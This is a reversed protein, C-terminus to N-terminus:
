STHSGAVQYQMEMNHDATLAPCESVMIVHDYQPSRHRGM